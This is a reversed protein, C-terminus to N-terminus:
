RLLKDVAELVEEPLIQEMCERSKCKPKYCPSCALNKKLVVCNRAPALHRRPDTPGFLAIFPVGMAAAIHLPASDGCIYVCCKEILCALQNVTTKGCANILKINKLAAILANAEEADEESGTIVVRMDRSALGQCFKAMHSRPWSKTLWRRSATLNIGVIKQNQTLWQSNLLEEIYNRDEKSPWLELREDKFDIGLMGLIRFQHRLPDMPPKEDKIRQNLLFGFKGNTYGYRLPAASLFSLIHSKRNNQLDIVMDF